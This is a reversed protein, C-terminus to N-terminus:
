CIKSARLCDLKPRNFFFFLTSKNQHGKGPRVPAALGIPTARNEGPPLAYATISWPNSGSKGM